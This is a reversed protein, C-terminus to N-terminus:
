PIGATKKVAVATIGFGTQGRSGLVGIEIILVPLRYIQGMVPDDATLRHKFRATFLSVSGVAHDPVAFVEFLYFKSVM